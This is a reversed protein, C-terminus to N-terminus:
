SSSGSSVQRQITATAQKTNPGGLGSPESSDFVAKVVHFDNKASCETFHDVGLSLALELGETTSVKRENELDSKNGVLCIPELDSDTARHIQSHFERVEEFSEQSTVSYLIIFGEAACMYQERVASYEEQGATDLVELLCVADGVMRQSRYSDHITPGYEDGFYRRVFQRTPVDTLSSRSSPSFVM